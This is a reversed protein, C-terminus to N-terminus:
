KKTVNYNRTSLTTTATDVSYWALVQFFLMMLDGASFLVIIRFVGLGCCEDDVVVCTPVSSSVKCGMNCDSLVNCVMNFLSITYRSDCVLM